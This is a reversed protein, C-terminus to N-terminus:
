ITTADAGWGAILLGALIVLNVAVSGGTSSTSFAQPFLATAALSVVASVVAAQRWWPQGTLLGAAAAVFGVMPVLFLAVAALRAAGDGVAGSLLWSRSSLGEFSAIGWAPIWGLMHGIGHAGIIGAAVLRIVNADM